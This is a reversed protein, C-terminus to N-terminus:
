AFLPLAFEFPANGLDVRAGNLRNRPGLDSLM